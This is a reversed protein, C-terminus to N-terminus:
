TRKRWPPMSVPRITRTPRWATPPGKWGTNTLSFSSLRNKLEQLKEESRGALTLRECRQMACTYALALGAGGCSGLLAVKLDRLDVSFEERIARAFGPGDTNFGSVSGDQQFVLTNVSGTARSLADTDSCLSCAAQKHPVTVNAGTFGRKRLLRVVEGFEEPAAQIRIYRARIGAADLAAQQMAPSKSHAIPFGIVALRAPVIEGADFPHEEDMLDALTYYPKM